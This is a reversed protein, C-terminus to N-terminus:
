IEFPTNNNDMELTKKYEAQQAEFTQITKEQESVYNVYSKMESIIESPLFSLNVFVGSKNENLKVTHNKKLIKLIEIHHLKSMLEIQTKMKDLEILDIQQMQYQIKYITYPITLIFTFHKYENRM